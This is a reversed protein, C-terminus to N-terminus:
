ECVRRFHHHWRTWYCYSDSYPWGGFYIFPGGGVHHHYGGHGGGHHVFGGGHGGDHAFAETQLMLTGLALSGAIVIAKKLM